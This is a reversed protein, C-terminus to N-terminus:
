ELCFMGHRRGGRVEGRGRGVAGDRFRINMKVVWGMDEEIREVKKLLVMFWVGCPSEMDFVLRNLQLPLYRTEDFIQSCTSLLGAGISSVDFRRTTPNFPLTSTPSTLALTYIQNRLEAPLSLLPSPTAATFPM